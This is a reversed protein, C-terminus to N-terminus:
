LGIKKLNRKHKWESYRYVPNVTRCFFYKISDLISYISRKAFFVEAELLKRQLPESEMKWEVHLVITEVSSDDLKNKQMELVVKRSAISFFYYIIPSVVVFLIVLLYFSLTGIEATTPHTASWVLLSLPIFVGFLCLIWCIRYFIENLLKFNAHINYAVEHLYKEVMGEVDINNRELERIVYQYTEARNKYYQNVVLVFVANTAVMVELISSADGIKVM